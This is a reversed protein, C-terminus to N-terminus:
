PERWGKLQPNERGKSSFLLAGRPIVWEKDNWYLSQGEQYYWCTVGERNDLRIPEGLIARVKDATMGKSLKRWLTRDQNLKAAPVKENSSQGCGAVLVMLLFVVHLQRM